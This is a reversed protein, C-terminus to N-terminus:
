MLTQWPLAREVFRRILSSRKLAASPGPASRVDLVALLADFDRPSRSGDGQAARLRLMSVLEVARETGLEDDGSLNDLEEIDPLDTAERERREGDVLVHVYDLLDQESRQTSSIQVFGGLGRSGEGLLGRIAFGEPVTPKRRALAMAGLHLMVGLRKGEGANGPWATAYGLSSAQAMPLHNALAEGLAETRKASSTLSLGGTVSQVRVHDEENVMVSASRDKSVFVSRTANDLVHNPSLLRSGILLSREAEGIISREEFESPLVRRVNSLVLLLQRRNAAGPFPLGALNRALRVRSSIVVDSEPAEGQLWAPLAHNRLLADLWSDVEPNQQAM